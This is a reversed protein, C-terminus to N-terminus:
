TIQGDLLSRLAEIEKEIAMYHKTAESIDESHLAHIFAITHRSLMASKEGFANIISPIQESSSADGPMMQPLPFASPLATLGLFITLLDRKLIALNASYRILEYGPIALDGYGDLVKKALQEATSLMSLTAIVEDSVKETNAAIMTVRGSIEDTAQRQHNIVSALAQASGRVSSMRDGISVISEIAIAVIIKGDLVAGATQHAEVKITEM